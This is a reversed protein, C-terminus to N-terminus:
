LRDLMKGAAAPLKPCHALVRSGTRRPFVDARPPRVPGSIDAPLPINGNGAPPSRVQGGPPGTLRPSSNNKSWQRVSSILGFVIMGMIILFTISFFIEFLGSEFFRWM